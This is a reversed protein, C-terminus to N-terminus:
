RYCLRWKAHLYKINVWCNDVEYSDWSLLRDGKKFFLYFNRSKLMKNLVKCTLEKWLWTYFVIYHINSNWPIFYYHNTKIIIMTLHSQFTLNMIKHILNINSRKRQVGGIHIIKNKRKITLFRPPFIKSEVSSWWRWQPYCYQEKIDM